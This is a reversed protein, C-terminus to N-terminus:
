NRFKPAFSILLRQHHLYNQQSLFSIANFSEPLSSSSSVCVSVRVRVCLVGSCMSVPSTRYFMAHPKGSLQSNHEFNSCETHIRNCVCIHEINVSNTNIIVICLRIPDPLEFVRYLRISHAKMAKAGGDNSVVTRNFDM